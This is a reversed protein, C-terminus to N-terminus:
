RPAEARGLATLMWGARWGSYQPQILDRRALEMLADALARDKTAQAAEIEDFVHNGSGIAKLIAEWERATGGGDIHRAVHEHETDTFKEPSPM